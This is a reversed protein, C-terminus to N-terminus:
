NGKLRNLLSRKDINIGYLDRLQRKFLYFNIKRMRKSEEFKQVIFDKM